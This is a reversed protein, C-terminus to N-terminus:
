RENEDDELLDIMDFVVNQKEMSMKSLKEAYTGIRKLNDDKYKKMEVEWGMIYSPDYGLIYAMKEITVSPINTIINNEYKYLLQKSIGLKKAFDTQSYGSMERLGKIREGVAM